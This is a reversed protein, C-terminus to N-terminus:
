VQAVVQHYPGLDQSEVLRSSTGQQEDAGRCTIEELLLNRGSVEVDQGPDDMVPRLLLAQRQEVLQPAAAAWTLTCCQGAPDLRPGERTCTYCRHLQLLQQGSLYQLAIFLRVSQATDRQWPASDQQHLGDQKLVPLTRDHTLEEGEVHQHLRHAPLAPQRFVGQHEVLGAEVVNLQAPGPLGVVGDQGESLGPGAAVM